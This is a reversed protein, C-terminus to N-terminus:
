NWGLEAKAEESMKDPSWAPEWVLEVGVEEVGEILGVTENVMGEFVGMLPCGPTTLTMVVKVKVGKDTNNRGNSRQDKMEGAKGDKLKGARRDKKKIRLEPNQIRIEYVLGLDVVNIGLEPDMVTKLAERVQEDTVKAKGM